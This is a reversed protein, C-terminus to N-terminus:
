EVSQLDPISVALEKLESHLSIIENQVLEKLIKVEEDDVYIQAEHLANFLFEVRMLMEIFQKEVNEESPIPAHRIINVNGNVREYLDTALEANNLIAEGSEYLKMLQSTDELIQSIRKSTEKWFVEENTRPKRNQSNEVVDDTFGTDIKFEPVVFAKLNFGAESYVECLGAECSLVRVKNELVTEFEVRNKFIKGINDQTAQQLKKENDKLYYGLWKEADKKFLFIETMPDHLYYENGVVIEAKEDPVNINELDEDTLTASVIPVLRYEWHTRCENLKYFGEVDDTSMTACQQPANNFVDQVEDEQMEYYTLDPNVEIWGVDANEDYRSKLQYLIVGNEEYKVVRIESDNNKGSVEMFGDLIEKNRMADNKFIVDDEEPIYMDEQSQEDLDKDDEFHSDISDTEFINCGSLIIVCCILSLAKLISKM